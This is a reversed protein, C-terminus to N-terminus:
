NRQRDRRDTWRNKGKYIEGTYGGTREKTYREKRDV